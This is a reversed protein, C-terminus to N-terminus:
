SSVIQERRALVVAELRSHAGLAQMLHRIHNRVTETSLHLESAIQDTSRGHELLHLVETQRPTLNSPPPPPTEEDRSMVLGFVGIVQRDRTLPVGSLEVAVREGSAGIVIGKNDSGQAPGTLNRYFIESARRREEPAVVSTFHKGRVDGVIDRAATNVWRIIGQKDIMYAPVRAREIASEVEGGIDELGSVGRTHPSPGFADLARNTELRSGSLSVDLSLRSGGPPSATTTRFGSARYTAAEGPNGGIGCAGLSTPEATAAQEQVPSPRSSV